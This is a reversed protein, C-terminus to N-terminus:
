NGFNTYPKYQADYPNKEDDYPLIIEEDIPPHIPEFSTNVPMNMSNMQNTMPQAVMNKVPQGTVQLNQENYAIPVPYNAYTTIGPMNMVPNPNGYLRGDVVWWQGGNVHYVPHSAGPPMMIAESQNQLQIRRAIEQRRRHRICRYLILSALVVVVVSVVSIAIIGGVSISATTNEEPHWTSYNDTYYYCNYAASPCRGYYDTCNFQCNMLWYHNYSDILTISPHATRLGMRQHWRHWPLWRALVWQRDLRVLWM